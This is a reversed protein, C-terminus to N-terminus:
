GRLSIGLEGRALLSASVILPQRRVTMMPSETAPNIQAPTSIVQVNGWPSLRVTVTTLSVPRGSRPITTLPSMPKRERKAVQIGAGRHCLSAAKAVSLPGAMEAEVVAGCRGHNLDSVQEVVIARVLYLNGDPRRIGDNVHIFGGVIRGCAGHLSSDTAVHNGFIEDTEAGPGSNFAIFRYRFSISKAIPKRPM